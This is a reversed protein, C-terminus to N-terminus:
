RTGESGTPEKGTLVQELRKCDTHVLTTLMNMRACENLLLVVFPGRNAQVLSAAREGITAMNFKGATPVRELAATIDPGDGTGREFARTRAKAAVVEDPTLPPNALAHTIAATDVLCVSVGDVLLMGRATNARDEAHVPLGFLAGGDESRVLSNNIFEVYEAFSETESPDPLILSGPLRRRKLLGEEM